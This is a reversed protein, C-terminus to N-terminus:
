LSCNFHSTSLCPEEPPFLTQPTSESHEAVCPLDGVIM